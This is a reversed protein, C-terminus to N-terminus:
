LTRGLLRSGNVYYSVIYFPDLSRPCVTGPDPQETIQRDPNAKRSILIRIQDKKSTPDPSDSGPEAVVSSQSYGFVM